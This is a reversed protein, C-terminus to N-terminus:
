AMYNGVNQKWYVILGLTQEARDLAERPTDNVKVRLKIQEVIEIVHEYVVQHPKQKLGPITTSKFVEKMVLICVSSLYPMREPSFHMKESNHYGIFTKSRMPSLGMALADYEAPFKYNLYGWLYEYPLTTITEVIVNITSLGNQVARSFTNATYIQV